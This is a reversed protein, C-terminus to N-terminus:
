SMQQRLNIMLWISTELFYRGFYCSRCAGPAQYCRLVKISFTHAIKSAPHLPTFM